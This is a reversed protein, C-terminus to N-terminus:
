RYGHRPLRLGDMGIFTNDYSHHHWMWQRKSWSISERGLYSLNLADRLWFLLGFFFLFAASEPSEQSLWFDDVDSKAARIWCFCAFEFPFFAMAAINSFYSLGVAFLASYSMSSSSNSLIWFPKTLPFCFVAFLFDFFFHNVLVCKSWTCTHPM